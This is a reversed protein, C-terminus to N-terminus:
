PAKMLTFNETLPAGKVLTIMKTQPLYGTKSATVEWQGVFLNGGFTYTGAATSTQSFLGRNVKITVGALPANGMSGDYVAGSLNDVELATGVYVIFHSAAKTVAGRTDRNLLHFVWIGNTTNALLVQKSSTFNAQTTPPVTDAYKDLLYYYGNFNADAQPNTWTFYLANNQYWTRPAPHSSSALTPPETNINTSFTAKVNGVNFGSDVSVLHFYNTGSVLDKAKVVHTEAQHFTGNGNTQSPLTGPDSSLKFYYGNLTPFPKSWALFWDGLGDNYWRARDPHSGSVLDLPPMPSDSKVGTVSGTFSNTSGRLLKVRGNGGLPSTAAGSAQIVGNGSITDAALFIGGGSAGAGTANATIQGKIDIANAILQVLGGGKSTAGWKSGKSISLDDARDYAQSAGGQPTCGPSGGYYSCYPATYTGAGAAGTTGYSAGGATLGSVPCRCIGSSTYACCTGVGSTSGRTEDGVDNGNINSAGDVTITKARIRLIGSPGVRLQGGNKIVVSNAYSLDGELTQPVGDIVLDAAMCDGLYCGQACNASATWGTGAANCTEPVTGNCRKGGTTCPDTCVGLNCGVNCSQSFLWASGSSNCIEVNTTNCRVAGPTCAASTTCAGANCAQPCSQTNVWAGNADCTEVVPTTPNCRKDGMACAPPASCTTAPLACTQNGGCMAPFSWDTCGSMLQVCQQVQGGATCRTAAQTCQNTCSAAVVCSGGSCAQGQACNSQVVWDTCGSGLTKCEVVSGSSSCQRANLTCQNACTALCSGGSCVLGGACANAASFARCGTATNLACTRVGGTDCLTTGDSCLDFCCQAFSFCEPDACDTKGDADDDMKNDCVEGGAAGGGGSGGGAASSGGGAALGGTGGGSAAAGGGSASSTATSCGTFVVLAALLLARFM